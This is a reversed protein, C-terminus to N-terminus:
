VANEEGSLLEILRECEAHRGRLTPVDALDTKTSACRRRYEDRQATLHKLIAKVNADRPDCDIRDDAM